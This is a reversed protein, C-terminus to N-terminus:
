TFVQLQLYDYGSGAGPPNATIVLSSISDAQGVFRTNSPATSTLEGATASVYYVAGTSLGSLGTMRGSLRFTGDEGSAIDAVVLGIEPTMSAYALDADAKYWQGANLAGSGDSLYAVDGATLDEGATGSVDNDINTNPISGINDRTWVTVGAATKLIWKYSTPSLFITARGAADCVIPNANPTTLTVESYTALPTVTGAAYTYLLAGSLPDGNDDWATFVPSPAYTGTAM